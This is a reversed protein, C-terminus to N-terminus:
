EPSAVSAIGGVAAAALGIPVLQVETDMQEEARHMKEVDSFDEEFRCRSLLKRLAKAAAEPALTLSKLPTQQVGGSSEYIAHALIASKVVDEAKTFFPVAGECSWNDDDDDDPFITDCLYGTFRKDTRLLLILPSPSPNAIRTIM